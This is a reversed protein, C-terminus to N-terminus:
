KIDSCKVRCFVMQLRTISGLPEHSAPPRPANNKSTAREKLRAIVTSIDDSWDAGSGRKQYLVHTDGDHSLCWELHMLHMQCTELDSIRRDQQQKQEGAAQALRTDSPWDFITDRSRAHACGRIM